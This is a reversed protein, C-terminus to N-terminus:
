LPEDPLKAWVNVPRDTHESIAVGELEYNLKEAVKNSAINDPEAKIVIKDLGLTHFGFDTLAGAARTTIGKGAVESSIWYGIEPDKGDTVHMLSIHGVPKGDFIIAYGYESGEQRKRITENIFTESDAPTKNHDVWPLWHRLYDRNQDVLTYLIDAESSDLQRLSMDGDVPLEGYPMTDNIIENM